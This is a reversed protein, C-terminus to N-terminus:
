RSDLLDEVCREDAVIFEDRGVHDAEPPLFVIKRRKGHDTEVIEWEESTYGLDQEPNPDSPLEEWDEVTSWEMRSNM